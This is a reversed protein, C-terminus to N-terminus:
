PFNKSVRRRRYGSRRRDAPILLARLGSFSDAQLRGLAVLEGLAEETESKLLGTGSSIEEFFSAGHHELYDAVTQARSGDFGSAVTQLM